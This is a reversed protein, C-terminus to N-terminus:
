SEPAHRTCREFVDRLLNKMNHTLPRGRRTMVAEAVTILKEIDYVSSEKGCGWSFSPIFKPPRVAGFVNSCAGIVAGTTFMTGIATKSHDGMILGLFQMGTDITRTGNSVRVSSYTNKLDSNNTAAGLNVWEGVYAHGLFGDHQKNSFGHIISAEVEGGIKCVPGITTEGHIKAHSRVLSGDGISAPGTVVAYPELTVDQGIMIPGDSADLVVGPGFRVGRGRRVHDPNLIHVHEDDSPESGQQLAVPLAAVDFDKKIEDGNMKIADWPYRIVRIDVTTVPLTSLAQFDIGDASRAILRRADEGSIHAGIIEGSPLAYARNSDAHLPISEGIEANAVISGDLMLCSDSTFDNIPYPCDTESLVPALEHRCALAPRSRPYRLLLKERLTLLGCRIDYVPRFYCLPNLDLYRSSECICLNQGM